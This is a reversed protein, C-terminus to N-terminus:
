GTRGAGRSPSRRRGPSESQSGAVVTTGGGCREFAPLHKDNSAAQLHEYITVIDARDTTSYLYDYLTANIIEAEVGVACADAISEFGDVEGLWPNTPVALGYEEFLALLSTQHRQEAVIINPFPRVDDGFDDLVQQYVAEAHYEDDLALLLGQAEDATLAGAYDGIDCIVCTELLGEANAIVDPPSAQSVGAADLETTVTTTPATTTTSEIVSNTCAGVMLALGAVLLAHRNM